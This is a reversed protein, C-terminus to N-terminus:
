ANHARNICSKLKGALVEIYRTDFMSINDGEVDYAEIGGKILPTWGSKPDISYLSPAEETLFLIGRGPYPGPAYAKAAAINIDPIDLLRQTWKEARGLPYKVSIKWVTEKITGLALRGLGATKAGLAELKDRIGLEGLKRLEHAIRKTLYTQQLPWGDLSRPAPTNFLALLAVTEGQASLLRAMDYAVLGGFCYGGLYYPGHPQVALIEQLYHAAMEEVTYHATKESLGKARLGFLPQDMGLCRSLNWCYFIEGAHGHVCFLPPQTGKPQVAVLCSSPSHTAPASLIEALQGITPSEVLTALPLKTKFVKEIQTFLRAALLSDGGLEFFNQDARIPHLGFAAEWLEILRSEVRANDGSRTGNSSTSLPPQAHDPKPVPAASIPIANVLAGPDKAMAALISQYDDLIRRMTAANLLDTSYELTVELAPESTLWVILDHTTTGPYLPLWTAELGPLQWTEKPANQLIFMTQFPPHRTPGSGNGAKELVAAFPLEQHSYVSLAVERVRKLLERFSPNGSLSTRLVTHNAFRGISGEVELLARNAVCSAVGIEEDNSYRHLLCQFGALLVMFLSVREQRSMVKLSNALDAPLAATERAGRHTPVAPRAHDTPLHQFGTPSDLQQKWYALESELAAGQFRAEQWRVFDGYPHAPGPETPTTGAAFAQYSASLERILVGTCWEDYVLQHTTLQLIHDGTTRRILRGRFVPGQALDFPRNAEELALERVRADRASEPLDSLDTVPLSLEPAPVVIQVLEGDLIRFVSRLVEHRRVIQQLGGRLARENLPGRLRLLVPFNYVYSDSRLPDRLWVKQESFWAPVIFADEARLEPNEKQVQGLLVKSRHSSKPGAAPPQSGTPNAPVARQLSSGSM